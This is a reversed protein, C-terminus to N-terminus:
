LIYIICKWQISIIKSSGNILTDMHMCHLSCTCEVSYRPLWTILMKHAPLKYTQEKKVPSIVCKPWCRPQERLLKDNTKIGWHTNSQDFYSACITLLVLQQRGSVTCPVHKPQWSNKTSIQNIPHECKPPLLVTSNTSLRFILWASIQNTQNFFWSFNTWM